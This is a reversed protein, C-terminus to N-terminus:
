TLLTLIEEYKTLVTKLKAIGGADLDATIQLRDGKLLVNLQNEDADRSQSQAATQRGDTVVPPAAPRNVVHVESMPVGKLSGFVRLHSGGELIEEVRRPPKLQDVGASTWQVYDGVKAKAPPPPTDPSPDIEPAGGTDHPDPSLTDHKTLGAFSITEKYSRIVEDAANESYEAKGEDRRDLTLYNRLVTDSIGECSGYRDWLERQIMPLLAARRIAEQRKVSSPDTDRIIRIAPETLQFKRKAGTGEDTLLGFQLLAAAAAWLNGSKVTYNWAEALVPVNVAHHLASKHLQKAREIAKALGIAPYPPSRFRKPADMQPEIVDTM